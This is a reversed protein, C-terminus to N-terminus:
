LVCGHRESKLFIWAVYASADRRRPVKRGMTHGATTEPALTVSAGARRLSRGFCCTALLDAM